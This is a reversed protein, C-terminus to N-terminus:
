LSNLDRQLESLSSYRNERKKELLRLMVKCFPDELAPNFRRPYICECNLITHVVDGTPMEDNLFPHEGTACEYLTMGLAFLDSRVDLQRPRLTLQDPSLYARTGVIGGPATINEGNRALALGADILVYELPTRQMVNMPKIDRHIYGNWTLVELAQCVCSAVSRVEIENMPKRVSSLPVGAIYEELFYLIKEGNQLTLERLELPGLKPLFRSDCSKMIELERRVRRITMDDAVLAKLVYAKQDYACRWVQKQGGMKLWGGLVLGKCDQVIIRPDIQCIQM